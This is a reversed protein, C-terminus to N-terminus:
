YHPPREDAIPGQGGSKLDQIEQELHECRKRLQDIDRQQGIIVENLEALLNEQFAAKTELEILKPDNTM